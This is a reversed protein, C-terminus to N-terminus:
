ARRTANTVFLRRFIIENKGDLTARRQHRDLGAAEAERGATVSVHVGHLRMAMVVFSASQKVAQPADFL